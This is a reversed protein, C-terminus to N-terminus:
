ASSDFLFSWTARSVWRIDRQLRGSPSVPYPSSWFSSPWWIRRRLCNQQPEHLTEELAHKPASFTPPKGHFHLSSLSQKLTKSSHKHPKSKITKKKKKKNQQLKKSKERCLMSDSCCLQCLFTFDFHFIVDLISFSTKFNGFQVGFM